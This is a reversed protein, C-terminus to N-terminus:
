GTAIKEGYGGGGGEGERKDNENNVRFASSAGDIRKLAMATGGRFLDEMSGDTDSGDAAAMSLEGAGKGLAPADPRTVWRAFASPPAGRRPRPAPTQILTAPQAAAPSAAVTRHLLM